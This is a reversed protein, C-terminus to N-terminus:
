RNYDKVKNLTEKCRPKKYDSGESHKIDMNKLSGKKLRHIRSNAIRIKFRENSYHILQEINEFNIM